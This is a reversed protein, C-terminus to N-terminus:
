ESPDIPRAFSFRKSRFRFGSVDGEEDRAESLSMEGGTLRNIGRIGASAVSWVSIDKEETYDDLMQRLDLNALQAISLSTYHISTPPLDLPIIQDYSGRELIDPHKEVLLATRVAQLQVQKQRVQRITDPQEASKDKERKIGTLEPPEQHKKITLTVPQKDRHDTEVALSLPSDEKIDPISAHQEDTSLQMEPLDDVLEQVPIGPEIRLLAIIMAIAAASSIISIWIVRSRNIVKKKLQDKDEYPIHSAVLRTNQWDKWERLRNEDGSIMTEFDAEQNQTLDGEMRAISFLDFNSDNLMFAPDPFEKKLQERGPFNVKAAELIWPEIDDLGPNCDPNMALFDRVEKQEAGTLRGEILDLLYAEYNNRNINM